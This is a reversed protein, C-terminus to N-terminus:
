GREEKGGERLMQELSFGEPLGSGQKAAEGATVDGTDREDRADDERSAPLVHVNEDDADADKEESARTGDEDPAGAAREMDETEEASM